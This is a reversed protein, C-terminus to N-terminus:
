VYIIRELWEIMSGGNGTSNIMAREHREPHPAQQIAGPIEEGRGPYGWPFGAPSGQGNKVASKRHLSQSLGSLGLTQLSKFGSASIHPM